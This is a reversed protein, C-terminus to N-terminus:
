NLERYTFPTVRKKAKKLTLEINHPDGGCDKEFFTGQPGLSAAM